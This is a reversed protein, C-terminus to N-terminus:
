NHFKKGKLYAPQWEATVAILEVNQEGVKRKRRVKQHSFQSVILIPSGSKAV